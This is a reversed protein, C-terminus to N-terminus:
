RFRYNKLQRIEINEKEATISYLEQFTKGDGGMDSGAIFGVIYKNGGEPAARLLPKLSKGGTPMTIKGTLVGPGCHTNVDYVFGYDGNANAQENDSSVTLKVVFYFRNLADGHYQMSDAAVVAGAGPPTWGAAPNNKSANHDPASCAALLILVMLVSLKKM